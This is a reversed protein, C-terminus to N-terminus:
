RNSRDYDRNTRAPLSFFISSPSRITCTFQLPFPPFLLFFFSPCAQRHKAFMVERQVRRHCRHGAGRGADQLCRQTRRMLEHLIGRREPILTAVKAWYSSATGGM